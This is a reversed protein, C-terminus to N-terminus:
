SPHRIITPKPFVGPVGRGSGLVSVAGVVICPPQDDHAALARVIEDVEGPDVECEESVSLQGAAPEV